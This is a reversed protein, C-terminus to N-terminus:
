VKFESDAIVPAEPKPVVHNVTVGKSIIDYILAFM